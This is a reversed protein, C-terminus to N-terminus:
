KDDKPKTLKALKEDCRLCISPSGEDKSILPSNCSPCNLDRLRWGNFLRLGLEEKFAEDDEENNEKVVSLKRACQAKSKHCQYIDSNPDYRDSDESSELSPTMSSINTGVDFVGPGDDEGDPSFNEDEGVCEDGTTVWGRKLRRLLEREAYSTNVTSGGLTSTETASTPCRKLSYVTDNNTNTVVMNDTWIMGANKLIQAKRRSFSTTFKKNSGALTKPINRCDKTKNNENEDIYRIGAQKLITVESEEATYRPRAVKNELHIVGLERLIEEHRSRVKIEICEQSHQGEVIYERDSLAEPM